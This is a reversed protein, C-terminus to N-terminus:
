LNSNVMDFLQFMKLRFYYSNVDEESMAGRMAQYIREPNEDGSAPEFNGLIGRWKSDRQRAFGIMERECEFLALKTENDVKFFPDYERFTASEIRFDNGSAIKKYVKWYSEGSDDQLVGEKVLLKEYDDIITRIDYGEERYKPDHCELIIDDLQFSQEQCSTSFLALFSLYIFKNKM